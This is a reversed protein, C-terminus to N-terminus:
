WLNFRQRLYVAAVTCREMATLERNFIMVEAMYFYNQATGWGIRTSPGQFGVANVNTSYLVNNNTRSAWSGAL